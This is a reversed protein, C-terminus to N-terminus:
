SFTIDDMMLMWQTESIRVFILVTLTSSSFLPMVTTFATESNNAMRTFMHSFETGNITLKFVVPTGNEHAATLKESDARSFVSGSNETSIATKLEVVPLGGGSGAPLYKPDITNIKETIKEVAFSHVGDTLSNIATAGAEPIYFMVFPMGNDEGEGAVYPNGIFIIHAEEVFTAVCRYEQGDWTVVYSEGASLVFQAEGSYAGEVFEGDTVNALVARGKSTYGIQGNTALDAKAKNASLSMTIPNIGM